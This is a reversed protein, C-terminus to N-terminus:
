LNKSFSISKIKRLEAEEFTLEKFSKVLDVLLGWKQGTSIVSINKDFYPPIINNKIIANEDIVIQQIYGFVLNKGFEKLMTQHTIIFYGQLDTLPEEDEIKYCINLQKGLVKFNEFMDAAQMFTTLTPDKSIAFGKIIIKM